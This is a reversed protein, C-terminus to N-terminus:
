FKITGYTYSCSVCSRNIICENYKIKSSKIIEVTTMDPPFIIGKGSPLFTFPDLARKGEM